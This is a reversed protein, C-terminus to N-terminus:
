SIDSVFKPCYAQVASTIVVGLDESPLAHSGQQLKLRDAIEQYSAGSKFDDCTAHGLRVLETDSRYSGIDPANAHVAGVFQSDAGSPAPARGSGCGAAFMCLGAVAM